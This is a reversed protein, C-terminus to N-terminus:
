KTKTRTQQIRIIPLWPCAATLQAELFGPSKEAQVPFTTTSRAMKPNQSWIMMCSLSNTMQFAPQILDTEDATVPHSTHNTRTIQRLCPQTVARSNKTSPSTVALNVISTPCVLSAMRTTRMCLATLLPLRESQQYTETRVFLTSLLNPTNKHHNTEALNPAVASALPIFATGWHDRTAGASM